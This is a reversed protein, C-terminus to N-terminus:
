VISYQRSQAYVSRRPWAGDLSLRALAIKVSNEIESAVILM